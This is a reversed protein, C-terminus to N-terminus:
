TLLSSYLCLTSCSHTMAYHILQLKLLDFLPDFLPISRLTRSRDFIQCDRDINSLYYRNISYISIFILVM